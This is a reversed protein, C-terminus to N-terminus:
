KKYEKAHEECLWLYHGEPTLVKKLGGWEQSRDEEDLLKRLARLEAGEILSAKGGGGAEELLEAGFYDRESLKKALEETLKIQVALMAGYKAGAAAGIPGAFAGAAAGAAPAAYKIVKALKLIYPGMEKFFEAPRKIEYRGEKSGDVAPHWCGPEQCFLQLVMKQGWINEALWGQGDKPLVAFVNPCHSEALGQAASFRMLFERHVLARLEALEALITKNGRNKSKFTEEHSSM